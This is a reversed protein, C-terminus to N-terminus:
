VSFSVDHVDIFYDCAGAGDHESEEPHHASTRPQAAISEFLATV